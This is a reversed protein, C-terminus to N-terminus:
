KNDVSWGVDKGNNCTYLFVVNEGGKLDYDDVGIMPLDGDVTYM